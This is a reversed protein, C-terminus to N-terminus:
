SRRKTNAPLKKCLVREARTLSTLPNYPIVGMKAIFFDASIDKISWDVSNPPQPERQGAARFWWCVTM